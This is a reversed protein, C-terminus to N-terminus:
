KMSCTAMDIGLNIGQKIIETKIEDVVEIKWESLPTTFLNIYNLGYKAAMGVIINIVGEYLYKWKKLEIVYQNKKWEDPIFYMLVSIVTEKAISKMSAEVIYTQWVLQSKDKQYFPIKGAIFSSFAENLIELPGLNYKYGKFDFDVPLMYVKPLDKKIPAEM